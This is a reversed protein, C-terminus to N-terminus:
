TAVASNRLKEKHAFRADFKAFFDYLSALFKNQRCM